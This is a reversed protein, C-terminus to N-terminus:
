PSDRTLTSSTWVWLRVNRARAANTYSLMLAFTSLRGVRPSLDSALTNAMVSWLHWDRQIIRRIRFTALLALDDPDLIINYIQSYLSTLVCTKGGVCSTNRPIEFWSTSGSGLCFWCRGASFLLFLSFPRIPFPLSPFSLFLLFPRFPCLSCRPRIWWTIYPFGQVIGCAVHHGAERGAEISPVM